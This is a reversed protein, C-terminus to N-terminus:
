IKTFSKKNEIILFTENPTKFETYNLNLERLIRLFWGREKIRKGSVSISSFSVVIYKSSLTKLIEKSINRKIEELSDLTKFLFTIDAKINKLEKYHKVLDLPIAKGKANNKKFYNNLFNCDEKSLEIALYHVKKLNMYPISLPNLGSALDLITSPKNTISFIEKYIQNYYPLREKTSLHTKLLEQYNQSLSPQKIKFLGYIKRLEERISKKMLSYEESRKLQKFPKDLDLKHDKLYSDIKEKVFNNDLTKLEKKSKIDKIINKLM